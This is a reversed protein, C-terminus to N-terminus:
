RPSLQVREGDPALPEMYWIMWEGSEAKKTVAYHKELEAFREDFHLMPANKSHILWGGQGTRSNRALYVERRWPPLSGIIEYPKPLWSRDSLTKSSDADIWPPLVLRGDVMRVFSDTPKAGSALLLSQLPPDMAPVQQIFKHPALQPTALDAFLQPHGLTM